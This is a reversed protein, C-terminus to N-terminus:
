FSVNGQLVLNQEEQNLLRTPITVESVVHVLDERECRKCIRVLHDLPKFLSMLLRRM